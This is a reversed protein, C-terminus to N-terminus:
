VLFKSLDVGGKGQSNFPLMAIKGKAKYDGHIGIAPSKFSIVHPGTLNKEFGKVDYARM